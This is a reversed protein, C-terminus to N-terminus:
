SLEFSCMVAVFVAFLALLLANEIVFSAIVVLTVAIIYKIISWKNKKIRDIM